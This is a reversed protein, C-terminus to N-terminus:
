QVGQAVKLNNAAREFWSGRAEVARSFAAAAKVRLGQMEAIVGADNLRAAWSTPSENPRREPLDEDLAARALELNDAIRRNRTSHPQRQCDPRDHHDAMRRNGLGRAAARVYQVNRRERVRWGDFRRLSRGGRRWSPAAM